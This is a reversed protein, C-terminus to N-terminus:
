DRQHKIFIHWYNNCKQLLKRSDVFSGGVWGLTTDWDRNIPALKSEEKHEPL